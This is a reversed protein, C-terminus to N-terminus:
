KKRAIVWYFTADGIDGRLEASLVDFGNEKVLESTREPGWGSWFMWGKEVLWSPNVRGEDDTTTFNILIHGGPKLWGAVRGLLESQEERPLHIVTYLGVVADLSGDPFSLQMMDGEQFTVRDVADESVELLNKRAAQIQAASIDNAIVHIGPRSLLM